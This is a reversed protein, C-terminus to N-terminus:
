QVKLCFKYTPSTQKICQEDWLPYQGRLLIVSIYGFLSLSTLTMLSLDKHPSIMLYTSCDYERSSVILELSYDEVVSEGALKFKHSPVPWASM